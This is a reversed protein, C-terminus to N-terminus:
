ESEAPNFIPAIRRVEGVARLPLDLCRQRARELRQCLEEGACEAGLVYDVYIGM